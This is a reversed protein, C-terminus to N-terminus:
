GPLVQSGPDTHLKPAFRGDPYRPQDRLASNLYDTRRRQESALADALQEPHSRFYDWKAMPITACSGDCDQMQGTAYYCGECPEPQAGHQSIPQDHLCESCPYPEAVDPHVECHGRELLGGYIDYAM